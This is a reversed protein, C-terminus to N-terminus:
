DFAFPFAGSNAGLNADGVSNGTVDNLSATNDL